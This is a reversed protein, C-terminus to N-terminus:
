VVVTNASMLTIIIIIKFTVSSSRRLRQSVRTQRKETVATPIWIFSSNKWLFNQVAHLCTLDRRLRDTLTCVVCLLQTSKQRCHVARSPFHIMLQSLSTLIIVFSQSSTPKKKTENVLDTHEGGSLVDVTVENVVVSENQDWLFMWLYLTWTQVDKLSLFLITQSTESVSISQCFSFFFCSLEVSGGQARKWVPSKKPSTSPATILLSSCIPEKLLDAGGFLLRHVQGPHQQQQQQKQSYGAGTQTVPDCQIVVLSQAPLVSPGTVACASQWIYPTLLLTWIQTKLLFFDEKESIYLHVKRRKWKRRRRRWGNETTFHSRVSSTM